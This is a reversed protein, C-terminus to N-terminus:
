QNKMLLNVTKKPFRSTKHFTLGKNTKSSVNTVKLSNDYFYNRLLLFAEDFVHIRGNMTRLPTCLGVQFFMTGGLSGIGMQFSM